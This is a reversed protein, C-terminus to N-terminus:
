MKIIIKKKRIAKPSPIHANKIEEQSFPTEKWFNDRMHISFLIM